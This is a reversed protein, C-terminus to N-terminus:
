AAAYAMVNRSADVLNIYEVMLKVTDKGYSYGATDQKMQYSDDLKWLLPYADHVEKMLKTLKSVNTKVVVGMGKLASYLRASDGRNVSIGGAGEILKNIPSEPDDIKGTLEKMLYAGFHCYNSESADIYAFADKMEDTINPVVEEEILEDLPKWQGDKRAEEFWKADLTRDTFGYVRELDLGFEKAIIAMCRSVTGADVATSNVRVDGNRGAYGSERRLYYGEEEKIDVTDTAWTCDRNILNLYSVQMPGQSAARQYKSGGGMGPVRNAKTFAKSKELYDSLKIMPVTDFNHEKFFEAKQADDKFSLYYARVVKGPNEHKLLYKVAVRTGRNKDTDNLIVVAKRSPIISNARRSHARKVKIEGSNLLSFTEMVPKNSSSWYKMRESIDRSWMHIRDFSGSDIIIGNWKLKDKFYERLSNLEGSFGTKDECEDADREERNAWNGFDFISDYIIKAEWINSAEAIKSAVIDYITTAIKGVLLSLCGVTKETYQLGERGVDFDVAGNAVEFMVNNSELFSFIVLESDTAFKMKGRLVRWDIPYPVNAMVVVSDSNSYRNRKPKISWSEGSLVSPTAHEELAAKKLNEDLNVIDPFVKWYKFLNIAKNPFIGIDESKIPITIEVGHEDAGCEREMLIDCRCGAETTDDLVHNYVTMKGHKWSTVIFSDGYAYGSKSGLGMSGTQDNDGRKSSEGISIYVDDVEQETLGVGFDRIKLTPEFLTPLTVRIPVSPNGFVIQSDLANSGYERTIALEKDKYVSDRMLKVIHRINKSALKYTLSRLITGGGETTKSTYDPIM